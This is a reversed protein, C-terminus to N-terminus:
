YRWAVAVEQGVSRQRQQKPQLPELVEVDAIQGFHSVHHSPVLITMEYTVTPLSM